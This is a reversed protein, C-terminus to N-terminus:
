ADRNRLYRRAIKTIEDDLRGRCVRCLINAYGGLIIKEVDRDTKRTDKGCYGCIFLSPMKVEAEKWREM